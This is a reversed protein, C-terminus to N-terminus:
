VKESAQILIEGLKKALEPSLPLRLKGYYEESKITTTRIEIGGMRDSDPGIELFVGEDDNWIRYIKEVSIIESM